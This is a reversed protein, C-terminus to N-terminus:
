FNTLSSWDISTRLKVVQAVTRTLTSQAKRETSLAHVSDLGAERRDAPVLVDDHMARHAKGVDETSFHVRAKKERSTNGAAYRCAERTTFLSAELVTHVPEKITRDHEDVTNFSLLRLMRVM